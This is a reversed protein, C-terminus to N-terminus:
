ATLLSLMADSQRVPWYMVKRVWGNLQAGTGGGRVGIELRDVTPISCVSDHATMHGNYCIGTNNESYAIAMRYVTNVAPSSFVVSSTQASTKRMEGILQNSANKALSIMNNSGGNTFAVAAQNAVTLLRMLEFEVMLTGQLPNFGLQGLNAVAMEAVRTAAANTTAIASSPAQANELQVMDVDVVDGATGLRFGVAPNALTVSPLSVRGWGAGVTVPTWTAGGDVTMEVTGAGTVRKVYASVARLASASVVTQMVTGGAVAATVRSASGAVGDLGTTTAIGVGSVSWVTNALDRSWLLLNTSQSEMLLGRPAGSAPDHDLRPGGTPATVWLGQADFHGGAGARNFAVTGPMAQLFSVTWMPPMQVAERAVNRPTNQNVNRM